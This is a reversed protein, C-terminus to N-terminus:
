RGKKKYKSKMSMAIKKLAVSKSGNRSILIRGSADEQHWTKPHKKEREIEPKFGSKLAATILMDLNPDNVADQISVMRGDKRSIAADFYIPWIVLKDKEPM